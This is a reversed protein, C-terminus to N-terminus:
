ANNKFYNVYDDLTQGELGPATNVELVYAQQQSENWIVDVAGFDLGLNYVCDYAVHVVRAPPDVGERAYVFGNSHNRIKWNPNAHDLKRKKQQISITTLTDGICGVHIRYEHKKNVYQVYLPAPVLDSPVNALVIGAGSHGNLITRCVIPFAEDPIEEPSTWFDPTIDSGEFFEFFALKNTALILVDRDNNVTARHAQSVNGWNIVLDDPRAEFLSNPGPKLRKGGLAEALAKASRSAAKYPLVRIRSMMM